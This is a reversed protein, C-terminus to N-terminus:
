EASNENKTVINEDKEEEIVPSSVPNLSDLVITVHNSRKRIRYARGQPAPRIRKLTRANDVMISKIYLNSEEVREDENLQQWNSIGSLILKELKEAYARKRHFKLIHLAEEVQKGRILSALLRMKRPSYPCNRLRAVAEM